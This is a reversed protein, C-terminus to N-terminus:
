FANRRSSICAQCGRSQSSNVESCPRIEIAATDAGIKRLWHRFEDIFQEAKPNASPLPLEAACDAEINTQLAYTGATITGAAFLGAAAFWILSQGKSQDEAARSAIAREFHIACVATPNIANRSAAIRRLSSLAHRRM